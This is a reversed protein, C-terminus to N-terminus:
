SAVLSPNQAWADCFQKQIVTISIKSYMYSVTAYQLPLIMFGVPYIM